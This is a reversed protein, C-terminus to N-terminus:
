KLGLFRKLTLLIGVKKGASGATTHTSLDEDWVADAIAAVDSSTNADDM